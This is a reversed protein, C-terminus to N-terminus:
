YHPPKRDASMLPDTEGGGERLKALLREVAKELSAIRREQEFVLKSLEEQGIQAYSLSSELEEIRTELLGTEKDMVYGRYVFFGAM